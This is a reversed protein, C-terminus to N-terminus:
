NEVAIRYTHPAAQLGKSARKPDPLPTGVGGSLEPQRVVWTEESAVSRALHGSALTM